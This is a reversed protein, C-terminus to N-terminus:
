SSSSALQSSSLRVEDRVEAPIPIREEVPATEINWKKMWIFLVLLGWLHYGVNAKRELHADILRKLAPWDFLGSATVAEESLTELLLPRLEGRFWEHIPIDFGVKPRRLVSQPLKDKMLRRLVYKSTGGNLKFSDPLRNAFEVIRPDLFPPRVELSHAMSM